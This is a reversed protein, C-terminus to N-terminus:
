RPAFRLFLRYKGSDLDAPIEYGEPVLLTLVRGSSPDPINKEGRRDKGGNPLHGYRKRSPRSNLLRAEVHGARHCGSRITTGGIKSAAGIIIEMWVGQDTRVCSHGIIPRHWHVRKMGAYHM